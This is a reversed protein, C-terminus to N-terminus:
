RRSGTTVVEIGGGARRVAARGCGSPDAAIAVADGPISPGAAAATTAAGTAWERFVFLQSTGPRAVAPTPQGDCDWDGVAVLDGPAGVSWRHGGSRIENGVVEVPEAPWVRAVVTTTVASTRPGPALPELTAPPAAPRRLATGGIVAAAVAVVVFAALLLRRTDVVGAGGADDDVGRLGRRLEDFAEDVDRGEM